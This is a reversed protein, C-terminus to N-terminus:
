IDGEIDVRDCKKEEGHNRIEKEKKALLLFVRNNDM